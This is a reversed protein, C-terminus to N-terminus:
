FILLIKLEGQVVLAIITFLKRKIWLELRGPFLKMLYETLPFTKDGVHVYSIYNEEFYLPKSDPINMENNVFKWGLLSDRFIGGDRYRM